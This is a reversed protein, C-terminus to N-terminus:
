HQPTSHLFYAEVRAAINQRMNVYFFNYDAIHYNRVPLFLIGPLKSRHVRLLGADIWADMLQPYAGHYFDRLVAGAHLMRAALTKEDTWTLPNIVAIDDGTPYFRNPKYKADVTRWSCFCGFDEPSRCPAINSFQDSRVPMGVLYAAVLPPAQKDDSYWERLLRAAHLTGQSHGAIIVPRGHSYHQLYYLFANRVDEYALGLAQKADSDRRRTYFAELHAQRYRPAYVRCAGNFVSAQNRIATRDTYLNLQTDYLDANWARQGRRGTYTTPYLYFVDVLAESQRDQMNAAPVVDASDRLQPHAAWLRMDSYDPAPPAVERDFRGSPTVACGM